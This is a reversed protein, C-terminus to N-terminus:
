HILLKVINSENSFQNITQHEHISAWPGSVFSAASRNGESMAYFTARLQFCLSPSFSNSPFCFTHDLVSFNTRVKSLCGREKLVSVINRDASGNSKRCSVCPKIFAKTKGAHGLLWHVVLCFSISMDCEPALGGDCRPSRLSEMRETGDSAAQWALM